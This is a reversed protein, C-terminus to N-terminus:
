AVSSQKDTSAAAALAPSAPSRPAPTPPLTSAPATASAPPTASASPTASALPTATTAAASRAPTTKSFVASMTGSVYARRSSSATQAAISAKSALSLYKVPSEVGAEIAAARKARHREARKQELKELLGFRPETADQARRLSPPPSSTFKSPSRATQSRPPSGSRASASYVPRGPSRATASSLSCLHGRGSAQVQQAAGNATTHSIYVSDHAAQRQLHGEEQMLQKRELEYKSRVKVADADAKRAKLLAERAHVTMIRQEKMTDALQDHKELFHHKSEEVQRMQERHMQRGAEGMADRQAQFMDRGEQRVEPRTEERVQDTHMMTVAKRARKDAELDKIRAADIKREKRFFRSRGAERKAITRGRREEDFREEASHRAKADAALQRKNELEQTWAKQYDERMSVNLSHKAAKCSSIAAAIQADQAQITAARLHQKQLFAEDRSAHVSRLQRSQERMDDGMSQNAVAVKWQAYAVATV